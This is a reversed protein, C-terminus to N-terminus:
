ETEIQLKPMIGMAQIEQLLLKCVFPMTIQAFQAQEGCVSCKPPNESSMKNQDAHWIIQGCNVCAIFETADSSFMLRDRLVAAAGHAIFTDREMEGIRMGGYRQRGELPQHTLNTVPGTSRCSIKDLVMHKLRQYFTPGIFIRYNLLKGTFGCSMAEYGHRQFGLKFLRSSIYDEHTEGEIPPEFPTGDVIQGLMAGVKSGLCELLQGITMRSPIAHPNVILDPTIGDKYTFPMDEHRYLMGITGKQGHRSSFKDGVQPPRNSRVKVKACYSLSTVDDPLGTNFIDKKQRAIVINDIYGIEDNKIVVSDDDYQIGEAGIRGINDKKPVRKGIVISGCKISQGIRGMGDAQLYAACNRDRPHVVNDLPRCISEQMSAGMTSGEQYECEAEHSLYYWCRMLGRDVAAHSMILSDEQNFGTYIAIAVIVNEGAPLDTFKVYKM